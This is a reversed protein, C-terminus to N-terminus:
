AQYTVKTLTPTYDVHRIQQQITHDNRIQPPSTSRLVIAVTHTGIAFGPISHAYDVLSKIDLTYSKGPQWNDAAANVAVSPGFDAATFEYNANNQVLKNLVFLDYSVQQQDYRDVGFENLPDFDGQFTLTVSSPSGPIQSFSFGDLKELEYHYTQDPANFIPEVYNAEENTMGEGATNTTFTDPPHPNNVGGTQTNDLDGDHDSHYFSRVAHIEFVSVPVQTGGDDCCCRPVIM